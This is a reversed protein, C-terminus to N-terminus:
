EKTEKTENRLEMAMKLLKALAQSLLVEDTKDAESTLGAFSALFAAEADGGAVQFCFCPFGRSSRLAKKMQNQYSNVNFTDYCDKMARDYTNIM